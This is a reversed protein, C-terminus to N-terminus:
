RNALYQYIAVVVENRSLYRGPQLQSASGKPFLNYKQAAGAYQGFWDSSNVDTYSYSLNKELNFTLTLMKLFEATNVTDAPKFSGDPYGNIIGKQAATMVYKVYWEGEKVDWFKGNNSLEQVQTERALLLFKAAEARNVDRTGKFEGDPFGGIVARRYLEAAAKGEINNINTDPFPNNEFTTFVEDEYGAPPAFTKVSEKTGGSVILKQASNRVYQGNPKKIAVYCNYKTNVKLNSVMMQIYSSTNNSIQDRIQRPNKDWLENGVETCEMFYQDGNTLNADKVDFAISTSSIHTDLIQLADTLITPTTTSSKLTNIEIKSSHKSINYGGSNDPTAVAAECLTIQQVM